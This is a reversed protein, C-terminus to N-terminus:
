IEVWAKFSGMYLGSAYFSVSKGSAKGRRKKFRPGRNKGSARDLSAQTPIGPLGLTDMEGSSIFDKFQNEVESLGSAFPDRQPPGGMAITQLAGVLGNELAGIIKPERRHLFTDMVHYKTELWGAVDGTTVTNARVKRQRKSPANVYPVDIVGLHLEM